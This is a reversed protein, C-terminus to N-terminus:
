TNKDHYGEKVRKYRIKYIYNMALERIGQLEQENLNELIIELMKKPKKPTM